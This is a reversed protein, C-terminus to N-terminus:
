KPCLLRGACPDAWHLDELLLALPCTAGLATLYTVLHRAIADQSTLSAGNREPPLVAAPLTPLGDDRPARDFVERWPGYPPTEALDYCHGVLVLAGHEHAEACIAESLATKGVGAEGGVLALSGRGALASAAADRLTTLERERGVLFPMVTAPAPWETQDAM